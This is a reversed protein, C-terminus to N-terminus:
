SLSSQIAFKSFQIDYISHMGWFNDSESVWIRNDFFHVRRSGLSVCNVNVYINKILFQTQIQRSIIWFIQERVFCSSTSYISFSDIPVRNSCDFWLLIVRLEIKLRIFLSNRIFFRYQLSQVCSADYFTRVLFVSWCQEIQCLYHM